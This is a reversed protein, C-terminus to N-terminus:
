TGSATLPRDRPDTLRPEGFQSESHARRGDLWADMLEWNIAHRAPLESAALAAFEAKSFWRAETLENGDVKPVADAPAEAFFAIMLASPSELSFGRSGAYSITAVELGTEERIERRVASELSEAPGVMGAILAWMPRGYSHRALLIRDASTIAVIVAPTLAQPVYALTRCVSCRRTPFGPCAELKGGCEGCFRHTRRWRVSYYAHSVIEDYPPDVEGVVRAWRTGGPKSTTGAWVPAEDLFGIVHADELSLTGCRGVTVLDGDVGVAVDDAYPQRADLWGAVFM